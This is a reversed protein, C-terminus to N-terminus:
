PVNFASGPNPATEEKDVRYLINADNVNDPKFSVGSLPEELCLM